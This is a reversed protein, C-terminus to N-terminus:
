VTEITKRMRFTMAIAFFLSLLYLAGYITTFGKGMAFAAITFLVFLAFQINAYIRLKPLFTEDTQQRKGASVLLLFFLGFALFEGTMLIKDLWVPMIFWSWFNLEFRIPWFLEVGNFWLFLDLIIHMLIGSGFGIGFNRWRQDKIALSVLFFLIMLAAVTFLSHTFTRHLGETPAKAVTAIAVAINDLDPFLNGLVVGLL